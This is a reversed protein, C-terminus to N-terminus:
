TWMELSDGERDQEEAEAASVQDNPSSVLPLLTAAQPLLTAALLLLSSVQKFAAPSCLHLAQILPLTIDAEAQDLTV